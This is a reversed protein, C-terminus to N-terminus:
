DFITRLRLVRHGGGRKRVRVRRPPEPRYTQERISRSVSRFVAAAERLSVDDFSLGDIGPARGGERRLEDYADLLREHDAVDNLTITQLTLIPLRQGRAQRGMSRRHFVSRGHMVFSYRRRHYANSLSM